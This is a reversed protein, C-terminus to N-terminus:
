SNLGFFPKDVIDHKSAPRVVVYVRMSDYDSENCVYDLRVTCFSRLIGDIDIWIISGPEPLLRGKFEDVLIDMRPLADEDNTSIYTIVSALVDTSENAEERRQEEERIIEESLREELRSDRERRSFVAKWKKFTDLM